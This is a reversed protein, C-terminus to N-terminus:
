YRVKALIEKERLKVQEELRKVQKSLDEVFSADKISALNIKVNYLASTVAARAMVTAIAGDTIANKNGKIIVEESFDMLDFAKQAIQLPVLAANKTTEQIKEARYNAQSETDRPLGYAGIVERYAKSDREIDLLFEERKKSVSEILALMDKEVNSYNKKGLTLRAMMETLAAGLAGGLAAVSGGGPAPEKSATKHLFEVLGINDIM